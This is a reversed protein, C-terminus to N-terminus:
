WTLDIPIVFAPYITDSEQSIDYGEIDEDFLNTVLRLQEPQGHLPGRFRLTGELTDGPEMDVSEEGQGEPDIFPYTQGADDVLRLRGSSHNAEIFTVAEDGGNIIEADIAIDNGEFALRTLRVTVGGPHRQEIDLTEDQPTESEGSGLDSGEASTGTTDASGGGDDVARSEADARDPEDDGGCAAAGLTLAVLGLVLALRPARRRSPRRTTRETTDANDANDTILMTLEEPPRTM